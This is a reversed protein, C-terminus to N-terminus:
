VQLSLIIIIAKDALKPDLLNHNNHSLLSHLRRISSDLSVVRNRLSQDDASAKSIFSAASDQLEKAQEVVRGVEEEIKKASESEGM